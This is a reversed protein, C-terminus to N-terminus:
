ARIVMGDHAVQVRPDKVEDLRGLMDASMHSLVVNRANIADLQAALEVWNLHFGLPTDYSYCETIFVDANQAAPILAPTWGTDGSFTLVKGGSAFRLAYPPAGSEHVVEFPTVTIDAFTAPQREEYEVFRMDFRPENSTSGPFLCEATQAYRAAIGRPGFVTLPRERRMVFQGHLQLFVLGPFHDGHLHSIFVADLTRPDINARALSVMATAGCDILVTAAATKVHFCTNHRGGTGFADGCGLVMVDFASTTKDHAQGGADCAATPATNSAM